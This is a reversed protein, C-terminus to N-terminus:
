VWRKKELRELDRSSIEKLPPLRDCGLFNSHSFIFLIPVMNTINISIECPILVKQKM